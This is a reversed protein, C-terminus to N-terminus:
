ALYTLLLRLAAMIIGQLHAPLTPDGQKRAKRGPGSKPREWDAKRGM